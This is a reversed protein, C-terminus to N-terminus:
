ANRIEGFASCIEDMEKKKVADGMNYGTFLFGSRPPSIEETHDL